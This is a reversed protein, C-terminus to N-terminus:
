LVRSRYYRNGRGRVGSEAARMAYSKIARVHSGELTCPEYWDDNRWEGTRLLNAGNELADISHKKCAAFIDIRREIALIAPAATSAGVM